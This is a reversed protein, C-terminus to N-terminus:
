STLRRSGFIYRDSTPLDLQEGGSVFRLRTRSERRVRCPPDTLCGLTILWGLSSEGASERRLFLDAECASTHPLDFDFHELFQACLQGVRTRGHRRGRSFRGKREQRATYDTGFEMPVSQRM